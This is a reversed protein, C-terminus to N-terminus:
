VGKIMNEIQIIITRSDTEIDFQECAELHGILRHLYSVQVALPLQLLQEYIEERM